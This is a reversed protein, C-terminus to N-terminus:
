QSNTSGSFHVNHAEGQVILTGPQVQVGVPTVAFPLPLDNPSFTHTFQGLIPDEIADPIPGTISSNSLELKTPKVVIDSGVLSILGYASVTTQVGAIDVTGSLGIGASTSNTNGTVQQIQQQKEDVGFGEIFDLSEPNITLDPIGLLRGLDSAKIQVQGDVEDISLSSFNGSLVNSLSIRVNKLDADVELDRLTNNVAVGSAAVSIDRYDGGIAQTIFPFGEIDVSPDSTLNLESRMQKSVQYEAAAAMGFDAAVLVAVVM